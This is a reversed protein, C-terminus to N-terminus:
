LKLIEQDTLWFIKVCSELGWRNPWDLSWFIVSFTAWFCWHGIAYKSKSSTDFCFYAPSRLLINVVLPVITSCFKRRLEEDKTWFKAEFSIIGEPPLVQHCSLQFSPWLLFSWSFLCIFLIFWTVALSPFLVYHCRSFHYMMVDGSISTPIRSFAKKGNLIIYFQSYFGM